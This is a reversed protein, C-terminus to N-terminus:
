LLPEASQTRCAHQLRFAPNSIFGATATGQVAYLVRKQACHRGSHHLTLCWENGFYRCCVSALLWACWWLHCAHPQSASVLCSCSNTRKGVYRSAQHKSIGINQTLLSIQSLPVASLPRVVQRTMDALTAQDFSEIYKRLPSEKKGQGGGEGQKGGERQGAGGEGAGSTSPSSSSSSSSAPRDLDQEEEGATNFMRELRAVADKQEDGQLGLQRELQFRKDVRRVFYGFMISAAYM